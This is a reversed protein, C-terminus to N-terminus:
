QRTFITHESQIFIKILIEASAIKSIYIYKFKSKETLQSKTLPPKFSLFLYKIQLLFLYHKILVFLM